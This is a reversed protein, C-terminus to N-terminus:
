KYEQYSLKSEEFYDVKAFFMKLSKLIKDKGFINVVDTVGYFSLADNLYILGAKNYSCNSKALTLFKNHIDVVHRLSLFGLKRARIENRLIFIKYDLAPIKESNDKEILSRIKIKNINIKVILPCIKFRRIFENRIREFDKEIEELLSCKHFRLRFEKILSFYQKYLQGCNFNRTDQYLKKLFNRFNDIYSEM